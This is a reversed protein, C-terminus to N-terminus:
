TTKSSTNSTCGILNTNSKYWSKFCRNSRLNRCCNSGQNTERQFPTTKISM